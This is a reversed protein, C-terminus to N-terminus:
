QRQLRPYTEMEIPYSVVYGKPSIEPLWIYEWDELITIEKQITELHYGETAQHVELM